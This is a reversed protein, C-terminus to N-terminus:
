VSAGGGQGGAAPGRALESLRDLASQRGMAILVDGSDIAQDPAPNFIKGGARKVIATVIIDLEQRIGSERLTSGALKSEAGVEAEGLLIDVGAAVSVEEVFDVVQPRLMVRALLVGGREYPNIVRRAGAAELKARSREQSCRAVINLDPRLTRAALVTYINEADNGLVTVLGRCRSIGARRLTEDDTADGVVYGEFGVDERPQSDIVVFPISHEQLERCIAQGVRGYGCVIFHGSMKRVARAVRRKWFINGEILAEATTGALYLVIGVGGLAILVAAFRGALSLEHIENYGVTTVTIVTMYLADFWTWEEGGSLRFALTGFLLLGCFAAIGGRVERGIGIRSGARPV